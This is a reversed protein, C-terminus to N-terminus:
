VFEKIRQHLIELYKSMYVSQKQMLYRERNTLQDSDNNALYYVLKLLRDELEKAEKVVREQHPLM